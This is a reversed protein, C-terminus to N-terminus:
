SQEGKIVTYMTDFFSGLHIISDKNDYANDLSLVKWASLVKEFVVEKDSKVLSRLNSIASTTEERKDSLVALIDGVYKVFYERDGSCNRGVILGTKLPTGERWYLSEEPAPTEKEPLIEEFYKFEDTTILTSNSASYNVLEGDGDLYGEFFEEDGFCELIDKNLTHSGLYGEKDILKFKRLKNEESM